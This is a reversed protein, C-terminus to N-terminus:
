SLSCSQAGNLHENSQPISKSKLEQLEPLSTMSQKSSEKAQIKKILNRQSTIKDSLKIYEDLNYAISIKNIELNKLKALKADKLFHERISAEDQGPPLHTIMLTWDCPTDNAEDIDRCIDMIKRYMFGMALWFLALFAVMLAREVLDDKRLGYNAISHPNVWDSHCPPLVESTYAKLDSGSIDLTTDKCEDGKFNAVIKYINIAYFCISIIGFYIIMKFYLVYGEGLDVLDMPPCFLSFPKNETDIGCCPCLRGMREIQQQLDM